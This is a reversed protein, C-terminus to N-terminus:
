THTATGRSNRLFSLLSLPYLGVLVGAVWAAMGALVGFAILTELLALVLLTLSWGSM